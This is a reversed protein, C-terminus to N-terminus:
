GIFMMLNILNKLRLVFVEVRLKIILLLFIVFHHSLELIYLVNKFFSLKVKLLQLGPAFHIRLNFFLRTVAM